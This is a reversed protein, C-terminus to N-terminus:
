EFITKFKNKFMEESTLEQFLNFGRNGIRIADEKNDKLYSLEKAFSEFDGSKVLCGNIRHDITEKHIGVDFAIMAKKLGLIEYFVFETTTAWISLNLVGRSCAVIEVAGNQMTVNPLLELQGNQVYKLISPYSTKFRDMETDNYFLAKIKIDKRLFPLIDPLIKIGKELRNQAIYVFYDQCEIKDVNIRNQDFFLPIKFCNKEPIGLKQYFGLQEDTSGLVKNIKKVEPLFIQQNIQYNIFYLYKNSGKELCNNLLANLNSGTLCKSCSTNGLSAHMRTCFLDQVLFLFVTKINKERCLKLYISPTNVIGGIFFMYDPEFDELTTNLARKYKKSIINATGQYKIRKYTKVEFDLPKEVDHTFVGIIHGMSALIRAASRAAVAGSQDNFFLDPNILIRM